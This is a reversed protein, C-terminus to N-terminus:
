YGLREKRMYAQCHLWKNVEKLNVNSLIFLLNDFDKNDLNVVFCGFNSYYKSHLAHTLYLDKWKHRSM